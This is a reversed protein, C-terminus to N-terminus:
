IQYSFMNKKGTGHTYSLLKWLFMVLTLVELIVILFSDTDEEVLDVQGQPNLLKELIKPYM